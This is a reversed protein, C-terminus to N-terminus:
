SESERRQRQKLQLFETLKFSKILGHFIQKQRNGGVHFTLPHKMPEGAVVHALWAWRGLDPRHGQSPCSWESPRLRRPSALGQGKVGEGANADSVAGLAQLVKRATPHLLISGLKWVTSKRLTHTVSSLPPPPPPESVDPPFTFVGPSQPARRSRRQLFSVIRLRARLLHRIFLLAYPNM